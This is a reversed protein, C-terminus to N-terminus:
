WQEAGGSGGPSVTLIGKTAESHVDSRHCGSLDSFRASLVPIASSGARGVLMDAADIPGLLLQM